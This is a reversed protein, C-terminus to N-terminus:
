HRAIKTVALFVAAAAAAILSSAAPHSTGSSTLTASRLDVWFGRSWGRVVTAVFYVDGTSSGRPATWVFSTSNLKTSSTHTVGGDSCVLQAIGRPFSTFQGVISNDSVRRGQLLFGEMPWDVDLVVLTVNVSEGAAYTTSSAQVQYKPRDTRPLTSNHNPMMSQCVENPAGTPYGAALSTLLLFTTLGLTLLQVATMTM